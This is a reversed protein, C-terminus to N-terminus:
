KVLRGQDQGQILFEHTPAQADSPIKMDGPIKNWMIYEVDIAEGEGDFVTEFQGLCGKNWGVEYQNGQSNIKNNLLHPTM